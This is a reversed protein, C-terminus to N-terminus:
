QQRGSLSSQFQQWGNVGMRDQRVIFRPANVTNTPVAILEDLNHPLHQENATRFLAVLTAFEKLRTLQDLAKLNEEHTAFWRESAILSIANSGDATVGFLFFSFKPSLVLQPGDQYNIESVALLSKNFLVDQWNPRNLLEGADARFAVRLDRLPLGYRTDSGVITVPKQPLLDFMLQDAAILHPILFTDRLAKNVNVSTIRTLQQVLNEREKNSLESKGYQQFLWLVETSELPRLDIVAIQDDLVFAWALRALL